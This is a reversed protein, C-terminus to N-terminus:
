PRARVFKLGARGGQAWSVAAHFTGIRPLRLSVSEGAKLYGRVCAGDISLDEVVVNRMGGSALTLTAEMNVRSRSVREDRKLKEM